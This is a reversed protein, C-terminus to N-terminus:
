SRSSAAPLGLCTARVAQMCLSSIMRWATSRSPMGHCGVSSAVQCEVGNSEGANAQGAVPKPEYRALATLRAGAARAFRQTRLPRAANLVMQLRGYGNFEEPM